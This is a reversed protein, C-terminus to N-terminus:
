IKGQIFVRVILVESVLSVTFGAMRQLIGLLLTQKLLYQNRQDVSFSSNKFVFTETSKFV